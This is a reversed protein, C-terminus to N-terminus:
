ECAVFFVDVEITGNNKWAWTVRDAKFETKKCGDACRIAAHHARAEELALDVWTELSKPRRGEGKRFHYAVIQPPKCGIRIRVPTTSEVSQGPGGLGPAPQPAPASLEQPTPRALRDIRIEFPGPEPCAGAWQVAASASAVGAPSTTCNWSQWDRWTELNRCRDDPCKLAGARASADRDAEAWIASFDYGDCSKPADLVTARIRYALNCPLPSTPPQYMHLSRQHPSPEAGEPFAGSEGDKTYDPCQEQLVLVLALAAFAPAKLM